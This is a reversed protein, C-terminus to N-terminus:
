KIKEHITKLHENQHFAHIFWKTGSSIANLFSVSLIRHKNTCSNRKKENKQLSSFLWEIETASLAELFELDKRLDCLVIRKCLPRM